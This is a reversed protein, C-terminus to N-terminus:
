VHVGDLWARREKQLHDLEELELATIDSLCEKKVLAYWRQYGPWPEFTPAHLPCGKTIWFQGNNFGEGYHNDMVPCTCGQKIAQASGPNPPQNM